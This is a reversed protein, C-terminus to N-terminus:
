DNEKGTGILSSQQRGSLKIAVGGAQLRALLVSLDGTGACYQPFFRTAFNRFNRTQNGMMECFMGPDGAFLNSCKPLIDAIRGLWVRHHKRNGSGSAGTTLRSM